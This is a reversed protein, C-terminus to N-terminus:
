SFLAKLLLKLVPSPLGYEMEDTQAGDGAGDCVLRVGKKWDPRPASIADKM